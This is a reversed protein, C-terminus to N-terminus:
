ATFTIRDIASAAARDLVLCSTAHALDPDTLEGSAPVMERWARLHRGFARRRVRRNRAQQGDLAVDVPVDLLVYHVGAPRRYSWRAILARWWRRTGCDHVVVTGDGRLASRAWLLATLHVLPRYLWYPLRTGLLQRWWNRAQESDVVRVGGTTIAPGPEAGTTGFLAHMMTSKGAGPIGAIVVVAGAPYRLGPVAVSGRLDTQGYPRLEIETLPAM